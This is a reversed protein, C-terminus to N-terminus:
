GTPKLVHAHGAQRVVKTVLFDLRCRGFVPRLAVIDLSWADERAQMASHRM